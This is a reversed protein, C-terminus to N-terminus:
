SFPVSTNSGFGPQQAQNSAVGPQLTILQTFSRTTLALEQVQSGYVTAGVNASTTDVQAVRAGVEVTETVSGVTLNGNVRLNQGASIAVGKQVSKQFGEREFEITYTGTPVQLLQYNGEADATTERQFATNESTIRVTAGPIVAGTADYVTGAFTGTNLSQAFAGAAIIAPLLLLQITQKM